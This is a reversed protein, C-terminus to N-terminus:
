LCLAPMHICIYAHNIEPIIYLLDMTSDRPLSVPLITYNPFKKM